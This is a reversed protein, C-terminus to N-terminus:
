EPPRGPSVVIPGRSRQQGDGSHDMVSDEATKGEQYLTVALDVALPISRPALSLASRQAQEAASWNKEYALRAGIRRYDDATKPALLGPLVQVFEKVSQLDICGNYAPNPMGRDNMAVLKVADNVVPGGSDGHNIPMDTVLLVAKPWSATTRDARWDLAGLVQGQAYNWLSNAASENAVTHLASGQAASATALEIATMGPPFQAVQVVALDRGADAYLTRGDVILGSKRLDAAQRVYVNFNAVVAGSKPDHYPFLVTPRTLTGAVHFNTVMLRNAQDAIWGTGMFGTSTDIIFSTSKLTQQYIDRAAATSPTPPPASNGYVVNGHDKGETWNILGGEYTQVIAGNSLMFSSTPLGLKSGTGGLSNYLPWIDGWVAFAQGKLPGDAHRVIAGGDFLQGTGTTGQPSKAATAEAATPVGLYTYRVKPNAFYAVAIAGHVAAATGVLKGNNRLFIAGNRFDRVSTEATLDFKPPDDPELPGTIPGLHGPIGGADKWALAVKDGATAAQELVITADTANGEQALVGALDVRLSLNTPALEIAKRYAKDAETWNREVVFRDGIKQYDLATQPQVLGHAAQVYAQVAKWDICRTIANTDALRECCVGVLKGDDNVVAGGRDRVQGPLSSLLVRTALFQGDSLFVREGSIQRVVGDALTWMQAAGGPDTLAHLANSPAAEADALTLAGVTPPLDKMQVVALDRRSDADLVRGGFVLGQQSLDSTRGYVSRDNVLEGNQYVPFIVRVKTAGALVHSSTLVLRNAVDVVWGSGGGHDNIFIATSRSLLRSVDKARATGTGFLAVAGFVVAGIAWLASQKSGHGQM